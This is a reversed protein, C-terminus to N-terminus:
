ETGGIINETTDIIIHEDIEINDNSENIAEDSIKSESKDYYQIFTRYARDIADCYARSSITAATIADVNGGDKTVTLKYSSPDKGVFQNNWDSVSKNTKDGLGPTESHELVNNDLIVGNKDFGVMVSLYGSFGDNTYSKVATGILEGDSIVEYFVLDEGGDPSPVSFEKVEGKDAGPVVINIAEKLKAAKANEIPEKTFNYVFGLAVAAVATVVFLTLTMNLFTSEKKAM